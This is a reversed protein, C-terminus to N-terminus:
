EPGLTATKSTFAVSSPLSVNLSAIRFSLMGRQKANVFGCTLDPGMFVQLKPTLCATNNACIWLHPRPRMSVLLEPPLCATKCACIWLHPRPVM